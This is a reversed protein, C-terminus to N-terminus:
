APVSSRGATQSELLGRRRAEAIAQQRGSCGLKETARQILTRVTHVSRGTAGAIEKPTQGRDLARLVAREADTIPLEPSDPILRAIVGELILALGTHGAERLGCLSQLASSPGNGSTATNVIETVVCRLVAVEADARLPRSRLIRRAVTTRGALAEVAACLLRSMEATRWGYPHGFDGSDIEELNQEALAVAEDRANV